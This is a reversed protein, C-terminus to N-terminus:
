FSKLVPDFVDKDIMQRLEKLVAKITEKARKKLSRLMSLHYYASPDYRVPPKHERVPYRHPESVTPIVTFNPTSNALPIDFVENSDSEEPLINPGDIDIGNSVRAPADFESYDELEEEDRYSV